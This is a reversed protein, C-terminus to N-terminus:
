QYVSLESKARNLFNSLPFREQQIRDDEISVISNLVSKKFLIKAYVLGRNLEVEIKDVSYSNIFFDTIKDTSKVINVASKSFDKGIQFVSFFLSVNSIPDKLNEGSINLDAKIKGDDVKDRAEKKLLQKLDVDRVQLVAAYQIKETNGSGVNFLIDKGFILGDLTFLRLNDITLVNEKYDVRASFGPYMETPKVFDLTSDPLFPHTGTVTGISLNAPLTQGYNQIFNEKNGKILNETTKDSIDHIFPIDMKINKLEYFNCKGDPCNQSVIKLYSDKSFLRGQAIPGKLVFDLDIDGAFTIGKLVREPTKSELTLNGKMDGTYEGFPASKNFPKFFKGKFDAKLKRGFGTLLFRDIAVTKAPDSLLNLALDIKLDRLEIAPFSGGLDLSIKKQGARNQFDLNGNLTLVDGLGSRVSSLTGRLPLPVAPILKTMNFSSDLKKVQLLLGNRLDLNILSSIKVAQDGNENKLIIDAPHIQMDEFKFGGGFDLTTKLSAYLFNKGSISKGMKYRVGDANAKLNIDVLSLSNGSAAADARVIGSIEPSFQALNVNDVKLTLDVKSKPMVTGKLKASIGNYVLEVTKIDAKELVPILDKETSKAKDSLNLVTEADLRLTPISHSSGGSNILLNSGRIDAKALMTDIDGKASVADINLQGSIGLNRVGPLSSLLKGLPDLVIKSQAAKMDIYPKEKTLGSVSGRIDLWKSGAFVATFEKLELSDKEPIIGLEYLIKFNINQPKQKRVTLVANETGLNLSSFLEKPNKTSDNKVTLFSKLSAQLINDNDEAAIKLDSSPNLHIELVKLLSFIRISLPIKRFRETDLLLQFSLPSVNASFYSKGKEKAVSLSLDRIFVNAFASVPVFLNIEDGLPESAPPPPTEKGPPFLTQINWKGKKERLFIEPSILSIESLKLRGLLLWPLNYAAALRKTRFVPEKGFDEGSSIVVDEAIIGFFLSFRKVNIQITGSSASSFIKKFIYDGTFVNFVSKYILLVAFWFWFKKKRIVTGFWAKLKLM